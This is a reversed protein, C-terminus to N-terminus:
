SGPTAANPDHATGGLVGSNTENGVHKTTGPPNNVSTGAMNDPLGPPNYTSSGAAAAKTDTPADQCGSLLAVGSALSFAVATTLIRNM